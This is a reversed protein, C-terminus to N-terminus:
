RASRRDRQARARGFVRLTPLGGVVDHFHHALRALADLAAQGPRGTALGILAGFLPVLPLTCRWSSARCRTPPPSPPSCRSRCWSPAAILAPLYGTFYGDLGDLGTTALQTLAATDRARVTLVTVTLVTVATPVTVGAQRWAPGLAIVRSLLAGRLQAKAAAAARHAFAQAAWATVARGATVAALAILSRRASLTAKDVFVAAIVTALLWAQAISLGASLVGLGALGGAPSAPAARTACCARTM